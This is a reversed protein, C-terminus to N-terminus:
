KIIKFPLHNLKMRADDAGLVLFNTQGTNNTQFLCEAFKYFRVRLFRIM